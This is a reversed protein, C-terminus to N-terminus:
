MVRICVTLIYLSPKLTHSQQFYDFKARVTCGCEVCPFVLNIKQKQKIRQKILEKALQHQYFEQSYVLAKHRFHSAKVKGNVIIMESNCDKNMYHYSHCLRKGHAIAHSIHVLKGDKILQM